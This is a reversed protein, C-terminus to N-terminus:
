RDSESSSESTLQNILQYNIAQVSRLRQRYGATPMTNIAAQSIQLSGGRTPTDEGVSIGLRLIWFPIVQRLSREIPTLAIVLIQESNM